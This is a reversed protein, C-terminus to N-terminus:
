AWDRGDTTTQHLFVYRPTRAPPSSHTSKLQVNLSPAVNSLRHNKHTGLPSSWEHKKKELYPISQLKKSPVKACHIAAYYSLCCSDPRSLMVHSGALPVRSQWHGCLRKYVQTKGGTLGLQCIDKRHAPHHDIFACEKDPFFYATSPKKGLGSNEKPGLEFSFNPGNNFSFNIDYKKKMSM